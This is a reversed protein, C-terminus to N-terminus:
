IEVAKGRKQKEEAQKKKIERRVEFAKDRYFEICEVIKRKCASITLDIM